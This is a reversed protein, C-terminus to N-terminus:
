EEDESDQPAEVDDASLPFVGMAPPATPAVIFDPAEDDVPLGADKLLDSLKTWLKDEIYVRDEIEALHQSLSKKMDPPLVVSFLDRLHVLETKTLRLEYTKRKKIKEKM